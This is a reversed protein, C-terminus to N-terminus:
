AGHRCWDANQRQIYRITARNVALANHSNLTIELITIGGSHLANALNIVDQPQMGRVIAVIKHELLYSLASM